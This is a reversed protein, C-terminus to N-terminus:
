LTAVTPAQFQFNTLKAEYSKKLFLDAVLKLTKLLLHLVASRCLVAEKCARQITPFFCVCVCNFVNVQFSIFINSPLLLFLSAAIMEVWFWFSNAKGKM